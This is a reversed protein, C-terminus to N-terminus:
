SCWDEFQLGPVRQFDRVNRTVLCADHELAIAAIRLDMKGINLRQSKLTEYIAIAPESFSVIEVRSFFRVNEAIQDYV